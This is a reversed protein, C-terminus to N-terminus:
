WNDCWSPQLIQYTIKIALCIQLRTAPPTVLASPAQTHLGGKIYLDQCVECTSIIITTSLM